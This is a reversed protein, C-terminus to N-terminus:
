FDTGSHIGSVLSRGTVICHRLNAGAAIEAGPWVICEELIAGAGLRAGAGVQCAGRLEAGPELVATAHVLPQEAFAQWPSDQGAGSNAAAHIEGIARLYEAREGLDRWLGSNVLVGAVPAGERLMRLWVQVVSEKVGPLLRSRFAPEVIYLGTFLATSPEGPLLRQGVDRVLGHLPDFNVQIPGGSSRLALTVEAGGRLHAQWLEELPLTTLVDGNYVLVPGTEGLTELTGGINWLGGATELLDPEHVFRIPAGEFEGAPFQRPYEQPLHHTNIVFRQIGARMAHRMAHCILPEQGLPILPKPRVETLPRLRTGLGAGLIFATRPFPADGM